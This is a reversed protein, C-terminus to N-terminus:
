RLLLMKRIEVSSTAQGDAVPRAQLRYFYMGSPLTAANFTVEHVGADKRGNVLVAVESGLVDYVVLRVQSVVPLQYSIVTTPNFPNPYNQGLGFEGPITGDDDVGTVGYNVTLKLRSLVSPNTVTHKGNGKMQVDVITGLVLDQLRGTIGAPLNWSLTITTGAGVQYRVEHTRSGVTSVDGKRYDRQSGGGLPIQIDQGIFRADFAGVPPFPPLEEEGLARDISDTAAPHLGFRLDRSAGASDRVGLTIELSQCLAANSALVFALFVSFFRHTKVHDVPQRDNGPYRATEHTASDM